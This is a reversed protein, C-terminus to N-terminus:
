AKTFRKVLALKDERAMQKIVAERRMAESRTPFCEWYVLEVPRRSRTYKAGQGSQHAAVREKLHNTWGTYLSGDSCKLIYTYNTTEEMPKEMDKEVSEGSSHLRVSVARREMGECSSFSGGCLM